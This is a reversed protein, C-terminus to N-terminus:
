GCLRGQRAFGWWIKALEHAIASKGSGGCGDIGILLTAQKRTLDKLSKFLDEFSIFNGGISKFSRM